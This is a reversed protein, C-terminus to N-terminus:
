LGPPFDHNQFKKSLTTNKNQMKNYLHESIKLLGFGLAIDVISVFIIVKWPHRAIFRGLKEFLGGFFEDV